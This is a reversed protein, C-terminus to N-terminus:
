AHHGALTEHFIGAVRLLFPAPSRRPKHSVCAFDMRIKLKEETFLILFDRCFVPNISGEQCSYQIYHWPLMSLSLPTEVNAWDAVSVFFSLLCLNKNLVQVGPDASFGHMCKLDRFHFKGTSSRSRNM